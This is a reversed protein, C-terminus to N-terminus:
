KKTRAKRGKKSGKGGSVASDSVKSSANYLALAEPMLRQLNEQRGDDTPHTSTLAALIGGSGGSANKMKEWLKPAEEPNYGSKAMLMLGVEDAETEQSRSFPKDLGLDKVVAVADYGMVNTSIGQSELAISAAQAALGTITSMTKDSKSHEKLAHAMEHGMVTAIQADTLGLQDVLGTYFMMKGGAMAWANLEDSRVVTIEWNFPVGTQNEQDAFPRMRNFIAHIRKSTRSTSDVANQAQADQVVSRYARASENNMEATTTCGTLVGAFVTAVALQKLFKM